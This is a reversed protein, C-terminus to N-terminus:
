LIDEKEKDKSYCDSCVLTKNETLKFMSKKTGCLDCYKWHKKNMSPSVEWGRYYRM